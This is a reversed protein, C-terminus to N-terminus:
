SRNALGESLQKVVTQCGNSLQKVVSHSNLSWQIVACRIVMRQCGNSLQRVASFLTVNAEMQM